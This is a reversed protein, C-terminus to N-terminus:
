AGHTASYKENMSSIAKIARWAAEMQGSCLFPQDDIIFGKRRYVRWWWLLFLLLTFGFTFFALIGCIVLVIILETVSPEEFNLHHIPFSFSHLIKAGESADQFFYHTTVLALVRHNTVAIWVREPKLIGVRGLYFTERLEEGEFLFQFFLQRDRAGESLYHTVVQPEVGAQPNNQSATLPSGTTPCFRAQPGHTAGCHPCLNTM